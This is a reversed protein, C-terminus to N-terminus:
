TAPDVVVAAAEAASGLYAAMVAPDRRVVEPAGNAIVRGFELVVVRDCIGV